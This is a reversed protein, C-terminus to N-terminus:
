VDHAVENLYKDFDKTVNSISEAGLETLGDLCAKVGFCLMKQEKSVKVIDDNHKDLIQQKIAVLEERLLAVEKKLEKNESELQKLKVAPSFVWKAFAVIGM